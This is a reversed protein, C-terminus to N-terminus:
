DKWVGWAKIANILMQYTRATLKVRESDRGASGNKLGANNLDGKRGPHLHLETEARKRKTEIQGFYYIVGATSTPKAARYVFRIPRIRGATIQACISTLATDTDSKDGLATWATAVDLAAQATTAKALDAGLKAGANCYIFAELAVVSGSLLNLVEQASRASEVAAAATFFCASLLPPKYSSDKLMGRLTRDITEDYNVLPGGAADEVDKRLKAKEADKANREEEVAKEAKAKDEAAAASKEAGDMEDLRAKIATALEDEDWELLKQWELLKAKTTEKANIREVTVEQKDTPDVLRQIVRGVRAGGQQVTHALEHALLRQGAVASTDPMGDRLFVDNGVTFAAASISRSAQAVAGGTHVRVRSLDAGLAGGFDAQIQAPLARGTGGAQAVLAQVASPADGGDLGVATDTHRGVAGATEFTEVEAEGSARRRLSDVVRDAVRDAGIESPDDSRGVSLGPMAVPRAEQADPDARRQDALKRALVPATGRKTDHM